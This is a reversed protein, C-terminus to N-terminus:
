RSGGAVVPWRAGSEVHGRHKNTVDCSKQLILEFEAQSIEIGDHGSYYRIAYGMEELMEIPEKPSESYLWPHLELIIARPSVELKDIIDIEAGEADMELVDCKPLDTTSIKEASITSGGYVARERGVVAHKVTCIDDVGNMEVIKKCREASEKGGEFVIVEGGSGVMKSSRVATM